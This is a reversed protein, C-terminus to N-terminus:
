LVTFKGLVCMMIENCDLDRSTRMAVLPPSRTIMKGLGTVDLRREMTELRKRLSRHTPCDLRSAVIGLKCVTMSTGFHVLLAM